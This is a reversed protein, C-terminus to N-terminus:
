SRIFIHIYWEVLIPGMFIYLVMGLIMFPGLPIRSKRNVKKKILLIIVVVTAVCLGLFIAIITNKWGLIFGILGGLKIDGLGLSDKKYIFNSIIRIALLISAIIFMSIFKQPIMEYQNFLSYLISISFLVILLIDPIIYHEYDIFGIAIFLLINLALFIFHWINIYYIYICSFSIGSLIEILLYRITFSRGCTSCKGKLILYSFIPITEYWRLIRNCFTCYSRPKIISIDRPLRYIVVNIFSGFISGLLFLSIFIFMNIFDSDFIYHNIM